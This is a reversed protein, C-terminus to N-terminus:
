FIYVAISTGQIISCVRLIYLVVPSTMLSNRYYTSMPLSLAVRTGFSRPFSYLRLDCFYIRKSRYPLTTQRGIPNHANENCLLCHSSTVTFLNIWPQSYNHTFFIPLHNVNLGSEDSLPVKFLMTSIVPTPLCPKLHSRQLPHGVDVFIIPPPFILHLSPCPHV